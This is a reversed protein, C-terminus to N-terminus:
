LFLLFIILNFQSIGRVVDQNYLTIEYKELKSVFHTTPKIKELHDLTLRKNNKLSVHGLTKSDPGMLLSQIKLFNNKEQKSCKKDQSDDKEFRDKMKLESLLKLLETPKGSQFNFQAQDVKDYDDETICYFKKIINFFFRQRKLNDEGTFPNSFAISLDEQDKGQIGNEM